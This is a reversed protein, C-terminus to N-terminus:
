IYIYIYINAPHIKGVRIPPTLASTCLTPLEAARTHKSVDTNRVHRHEDIEDRNVEEQEQAEPHSKEPSGDRDDRSGDLFTALRAESCSVVLVLAQSVCEM